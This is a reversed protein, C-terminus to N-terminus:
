AKRGDVLGHALGKVVNFNGQRAERVILSILRYPGGILYFGLKEVFSAHRKMFLMWTRVRNAAYRKTYQGTEFSRGPRTDHWVLADPEYRGHYGIARARLGFDLDEPGYPDFVSDFGGLEKFVSSRVLMCGGSVICKGPTDYQGRDIEGYGIHSTDARWFSLKCGGAGYIVRQQSTAEDDEGLCAIKGTTLALTPDQSFPANLIKLFGSSVIMDNDIFFLFAPDLRSVALKAAANRGSAVGLNQPSGACIVDPYLEQVAAMTGDTSGNDWLIISHNPAKVARFSELCRLTKDKQNITLIIVAIESHGSNM